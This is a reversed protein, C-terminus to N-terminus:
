PHRPERSSASRAGFITLISVLTIAGSLWYVYEPRGLDLAWGFLPPGIVFGLSFGSSIFGFVTGITGPPAINRVMVDRAANTSSLFLGHLVMLAPIAALPLSAFGVPVIFAAALTYAVATLLDPRKFRDALFGGAVVGVGGAVFYATLAFSAAELSLGHLKMGAPISFSQIASAAASIMTFFVFFMLVSPSLLVKLLEGQMAQSRKKAVAGENTLAGREPIIAATFALGLLGIAIIAERWNMFAVLALMIPPALMWGLYGAFQHVSFARGIRENGVRASLIAYDAPHFVSNGIGALVMLLIMTWYDSVFGFAAIALANLGLGGLFIARAGFRDVIMGAPIQVIGTLASYVALLVGLEAFSLGLDRQLLPFLPPLAFM